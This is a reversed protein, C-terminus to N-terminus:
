HQIILKQTKGNDTQLFYIGNDLNSVDIETNDNNTKFTLLIKGTLNTLHAQKSQTHFRFTSITPNPYIISAKNNNPDDLGTYVYLELCNQGFSIDNDSYCYLHYIAGGDVNPATISCYNSISLFSRSKSGFREFITDKLTTLGSDSYTQFGEYSVVLYYLQTNQFMIHGTDLVTIKILSDCYYPAIGMEISDIFVQPVTWSDGPLAKFNYITDNDILSSNLHYGYVVSDEEYFALSSLTSITDFYSSDFPNTGGNYSVSYNYYRSYINGNILTDADITLQVMGTYNGCCYENWQFTFKANPKNWLQGYLSIPVFALFILLNTTQKM